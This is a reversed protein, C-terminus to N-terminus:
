NGDIRSPPAPAARLPKRRLVPLHHPMLASFLHVLPYSCLGAIVGSAIMGIIMTGVSGVQGVGPLSMPNAMFHPVPLSLVDSLWRGLKAQAIWIPVNTLPNSLLCAAMAFPVNAKARMAVIAAFISQLPILLLSFFLGIALGNAVTDRCPVWLTRAFLPRTLTQWWPRHRLKRHRLARFTRRVLRLYRKKM